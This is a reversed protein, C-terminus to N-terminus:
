SRGFHTTDGEFLVYKAKVSRWDEGPEGELAAVKLEDLYIVGANVDTKTFSVAKGQARAMTQAESLRLLALANTLLV